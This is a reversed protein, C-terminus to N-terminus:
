RCIRSPEVMEAGEAKLERASVIYDSTTGDISYRDIDLKDPFGYFPRLNQQLTFYLLAEDLFKVCCEFVFEFEM